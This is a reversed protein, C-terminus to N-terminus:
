KENEIKLIALSASVKVLTRLKITATLLAAALLPKVFTRFGTLVPYYDDLVYTLEKIGYLAFIICIFYRVAPAIRTLSVGGNAINQYLVWSIYFSCFTMVASVIFDM